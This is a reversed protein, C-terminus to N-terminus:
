KAKGVVRNRLFIEWIVAGAVAGIIWSYIHAWNVPLVFYWIVGIAIWALILVAVSGKLVNNLQIASESQQDTYFRLEAPFGRELTRLTERAKRASDAYDEDFKYWIGALIIQVVVIVGPLWNTLSFVASNMAIVSAVLFVSVLTWTITNVMRVWDGAQQYCMQRYLLVEVEGPKGAVKEGGSTEDIM